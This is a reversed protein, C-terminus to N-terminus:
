SRAELCRVLLALAEGAAAVLVEQPNGDLDLRHVEPGAGDDVGVFVTGPDQGDQPDPGGSGTVGIAVDARLLRRVGRAMAEAAEESVVPGDPVGLVAHKVESSYAVLSGRFWESASGAASLAVAINGGTLSEAAAVTIGHRRALESVREALEEHREDAPRAREEDITPEAQV